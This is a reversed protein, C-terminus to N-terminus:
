ACEKLVKNRRNASYTQWRKLKFGFAQVLGPNRDTKLLDVVDGETFADPAFGLQHLIKNVHLPCDLTGFPGNTYFVLRKGHARLTDIAAVFAPQPPIVSYDVDYVRRLYGTLANRNICRYVDVILPFAWALDAPKLIGDCSIRGADRWEERSALLERNVNADDCIKRQIADHLHTDAHFITDDVDLIYTQIDRALLTPLYSHSYNENAYFTMAM